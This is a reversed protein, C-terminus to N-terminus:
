PSFFMMKFLFLMLIKSKEKAETELIDQCLAPVLLYAQFFLALGFLKWFAPKVFAKSDDLFHLFDLKILDWVQLAGKVM